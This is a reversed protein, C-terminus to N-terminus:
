SLQSKRERAYFRHQGIVSVLRLDNSWRPHVARAHYFTAGGTFDRVWGELTVQAVQKAMFWAKKDKPEGRKTLRAPADKKGKVLGSTWSFQKPKVVVECVKGPDRGARNMTVQAVAHQGTLPEGRAEHYINLALCLAATALIM